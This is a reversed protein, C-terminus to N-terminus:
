PHEEATARDGVLVFALIDDRNIRYSQDAPARWTGVYLGPEIEEMKREGFVNRIRFFAKGGPTAHMTVKVTEGGYLRSGALDTTVSQVVPMMGSRPTRYARGIPRSPETFDASRAGTSIRVTATAPNWRVSAGLTESIFRLPVMTSGGITMAPVDLAVRENNVRAFRSGIPLDIEMNRNTAIVTRTNADWDVTAGLEELVGRLPVLVRGNYERPGVTDFEVPRGNVVVRIDQAWTFGASMALLGGIAFARVFTRQCM